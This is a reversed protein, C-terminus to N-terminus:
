RPNTDNAPTIRVKAFYIITESKSHNLEHSSNYSIWVHDDYWAFGPSGCTFLNTGSPLSLLEALKGSKVDVLWITVQSLQQDVLSRSAYYQRGAILLGGSPLELMTPGVLCADLRKWTWERFPAEASGFFSFPELSEIARTRPVVCFALGANTFVFSPDYGNGPSFDTVHRDFTRGNLTTLLSMRGFHAGYGSSAGWWKDEHWVMQNLLLDDEIAPAFKKWAIGDRSAWGTPQYKAASENLEIASFLMLQEDPKVSFRSCPLDADSLEAALNWVQGDTSRIISIKKEGAMDFRDQFRCFWQDGYRVIDTSMCPSDPTWIRKLEVLSANVPTSSARGAELSPLPEQGFTGVVCVFILANLTLLRIM